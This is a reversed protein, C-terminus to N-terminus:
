AISHEITPTKSSKTTVAGKSIRVVYEIYEETEKKEAQANIGSRRMTDVAHNVTNFFLRVDRIVPQSKRRKEKGLLEDEILRESQAVNLKEKIIRQLVTERQQKNDLKLLCRAHRETLNNHLITQREEVSLRLLRLRNAITPQKCGLRHATEEQTLGYQSILLQIGEAEEFFNIDERQLNEILSIVAAKSGEAEVAICPIDHMGAIKAARLRREGAILVPKGQQFTVSIPHILGNEGISQALEMLKEYSFEKRPQNPNPLIDETPIMMINGIVAYKVKNTKSLRIQM